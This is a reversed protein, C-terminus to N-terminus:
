PSSFLLNDQQLAFRLPSKLNYRLAPELELYWRLATWAEYIRARIWQRHVSRCLACYSLANWRSEEVFCFGVLM